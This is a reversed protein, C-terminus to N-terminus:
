GTPPVKVFALFLLSVIKECSTIRERGLLCLLYCYGFIMAMGVFVAVDDNDNGGGFSETLLLNGCATIFNSKDHLLSSSILRIM